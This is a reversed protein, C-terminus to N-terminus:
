CNPCKEETEEYKDCILESDEKKMILSERQQIDFAALESSNSKCIIPLSSGQDLYSILNCMIQDPDSICLYLSKNTDKNSTILLHYNM